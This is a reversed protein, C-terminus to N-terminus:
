YPCDYFNIKSEFENLEEMSEVNFNLMGGDPLLVAFQEVNFFYHVILKIDTDEPTDNIPNRNKILKEIFVGQNDKLEIWGNKFLEEKTIKTAM